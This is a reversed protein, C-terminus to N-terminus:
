GMNIYRGNRRGARKRYECGSIRSDETLMDRMESAHPMELGHYAQSPSQRAYDLMAQWNGRSARKGPYAQIGSAVYAIDRSDYSM